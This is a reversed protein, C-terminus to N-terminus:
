MRELLAIWEAPINGEYIYWDEHGPWDIVVSQNDPHMGDVYEVATKLKWEKHPPIEITLRYATRSYKVMHSTAWSQEKPDSEATLWQVGERLRLPNYAMLPFRGLRLGRRQVGKVMHAPCFHYLTM